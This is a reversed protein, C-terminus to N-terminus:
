YFLIIIKEHMARTGLSLFIFFLWKHIFDWNPSVCNGNPLGCFWLGLGRGEEQLSLGNGLEDSVKGISGSNM